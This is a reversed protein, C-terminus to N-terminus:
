KAMRKLLATMDGPKARRMRAPRDKDKPKGFITGLFEMRGRRALDIEAFTAAYTESPSWGLWGTCFSFLWDLYESQSM